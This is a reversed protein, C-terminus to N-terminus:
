LFRMHEIIASTWENFRYDTVHVDFKKPIEFLRDTDAYKSEKITDVWVNVDANFEKRLKETPCIFDCISIIGYKSNNDAIDRIRKMQRLRGDSSFDWDNVMHRIEDANIRAFKTTTYLSNLSMLLHDSLSTKGSGSLGFILIKSM